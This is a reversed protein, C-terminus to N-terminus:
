LQTEGMFPAPRSKRWFGESFVYGSLRFLKISAVNDDLVSAIFHAQGRRSACFASEAARLMSAGLGLHHFDPDLYISVEAAGSPLEDFRVVGVDLTGVHGILLHRHPDILTRKVWEVHADPVLPSPDRSLARTSPHNRWQFMRDTDAATAARVGVQDRLMFVAVRPAGRGDVLRAASECTRRRLDADNAFAEFSTGITEASLPEGPGIGFGANREVMTKVVGFQNEATVLLLSPVGVAARELAAGGGAGIQIDHRRFFASLDPLDVSVVTPPLSVALERLAALHPNASTTAIEIPGSFKAVERCGRLALLSVGERDVGGLFVGVSRVPISFRYRAADRYAVGLLAFRPGM